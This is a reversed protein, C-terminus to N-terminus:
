YVKFIFISLVILSISLSLSVKITNSGQYALSTRYDCDSGSAFCTKQGDCLFCFEFCRETDSCDSLICRGTKCDRDQECITNCRSQAEAPISVYILITLAVLHTARM